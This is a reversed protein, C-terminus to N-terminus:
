EDQLEAAPREYTYAGLSEWGPLFLDMAEMFVGRVSSGLTLRQLPLKALAPVAGDGVADSLELSKLNPLGVVVACLSCDQLGCADLSLSTLQTGAAAAGLKAAATMSLPLHRIRLDQLHPLSAVAQMVVEMSPVKAAEADLDSEFPAGPWQLEIADLELQQLLTCPQLVDAFQQPTVDLMETYHLRLSTLLSLSRLGALTEATLQSQESTDGGSHRLERLKGSLAPWAAAGANIDVEHPEDIGSVEANYTETDVYVLSIHTLASLSSLQLLEAPKTRCSQIHLQQLYRLPLVVDPFALRGVHLVKLGLPLDQWIEDHLGALLLLLLLLLHSVHPHSEVSAAM